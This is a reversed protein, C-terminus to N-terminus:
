NKVIKFTKITNHNTIVKLLYIGSSINSVNIQTQIHQIAGKILCKGSVDCLSYYSRVNGTHKLLLVIVDTAPNPYLKLSDDAPDTLITHLTYLEVPQQVGQTLTGGNGNHETFVLQGVTFSISGNDASADGGVSVLAQQALAMPMLFIVFANFLIYKM